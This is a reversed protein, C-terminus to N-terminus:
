HVEGNVPIALWLHFDRLEGVLDALNPETIHELTVAELRLTLARRNSGLARKM